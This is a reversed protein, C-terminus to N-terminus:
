KSRVLLLCGYSHEEDRGIDEYKRPSTTGDFAFDGMYYMSTNSGDLAKFPTSSWYNCENDTLGDFSDQDLLQTGDASVLSKFEDRTPLRWGAHTAAQTQKAFSVAESYLFRQVHEVCMGHVWKMGIPCRTWILNTRIDLIEQGNPTFPSPGDREARAPLAAAVLLLPAVATLISSLRM